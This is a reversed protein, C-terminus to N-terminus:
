RVNIQKNRKIPGMDPGTLLPLINQGTAKEIRANGFLPPLPPILNKQHFQGEINMTHLNGDWSTGLRVQDQKNCTKPM